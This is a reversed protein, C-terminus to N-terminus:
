TLDPPARSPEQGLYVACWRITHQLMIDIHNLEEARRDLREYHRRIAVPLCHLDVTIDQWLVHSFRVGRRLRWRLRRAGSPNKHVQLNLPSGQVKSMQVLNSMELHVEQQRLKYAKAMAVFSSRGTFAALDAGGPGM